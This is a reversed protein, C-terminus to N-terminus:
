QVIAQPHVVEIESLGSFDDPNLTLLHTIQHVLMVAVLRVDHSRKGLTGVRTVLRRWNIFVTSDEELLPFQDLLQSIEEDAQQATWGLGNVQLPRTAVVWFEILVQGTLVCENGSALIAAVADLVLRHGLATSDVLRILINTDLLYATM